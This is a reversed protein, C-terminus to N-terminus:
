HATGAMAAGRDYGICIQFACVAFNIRVDALILSAELFKKGLKGKRAANGTVCGRLTGSRDVLAAFEAIRQAVCKASHEVIGRKDDGADHAVALCLSTREGSCPM